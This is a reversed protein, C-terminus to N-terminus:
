GDRATSIWRVITGLDAAVVRPAVGLEEGPANSKNLWATPYGYWAAGAVDWGAFAVFAIEDRRMGLASPGLDYARPSPKAARVRDTSLVLEVADAIGARQLGSALMQETMNSLMALRLGASRLERVAAVADPWPRLQAQADVLRARDDRSMAIGLTKSVYILADDATRQFDAYQGGLTRLWQYEFHRARWATVLASGRGPALTEATSMVATADFLAFGDFAVARVAPVSPKPSLAALATMSALGSTMTSVFARRDIVAM